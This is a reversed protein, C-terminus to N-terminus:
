RGERRDQAVLVQRDAAAAGARLVGCRRDDRGVRGAALSEDTIPNLIIRYKRDREDVVISPEEIKSGKKNLIGWPATAAWVALHTRDDFLAEEMTADDPNFFFTKGRAKFSVVFLAEAGEIKRKAFYWGLKPITEREFLDVPPNLVREANKEYFYRVDKTIAELMKQLTVTRAIRSTKELDVLWLFELGLLVVLPLLVAPLLWWVTRRRHLM